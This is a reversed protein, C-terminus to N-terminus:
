KYMQETDVQQMGPVVLTLNLLNGLTNCLDFSFGGNQLYKNFYGAYSALNNM